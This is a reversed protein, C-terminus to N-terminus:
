LYLTIFEVIRHCLLFKLILARLNQPTLRVFLVGCHRLIFRLASIPTKVFGDFTIM